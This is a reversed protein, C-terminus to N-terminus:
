LYWHMYTNRIGPVIHVHIHHVKSEAASRAYQHGDSDTTQIM